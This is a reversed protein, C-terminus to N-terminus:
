AYPDVTALNKKKLKEPPDSSRLAYVSVIALPITVRLTEIVKVPVAKVVAVTGELNDVFDTGETGGFVNMALVFLIGSVFPFALTAFVPGLLGHARIAPRIVWAGVFVAALGPLFFYTDAAVRPDIAPMIAAGITLRLAIYAVVAIAISVFFYRLM